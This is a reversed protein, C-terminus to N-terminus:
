AKTMKQSYTEILKFLETGETVSFTVYYEEENLSGDEDDLYYFNGGYHAVNVGSPDPAEYYLKEFAEQSKKDTTRCCIEVEFLTLEGDEDYIDGYEDFSDPETVYESLVKDFYGTCAEFFDAYNEERIVPAAHDQESWSNDYISIDKIDFGVDKLKDFVGTPPYTKELEHLMEVLEKDKEDFSYNRMLMNGNKLTYTVTIHYDTDMGVLGDFFYDFFTEDEDRERKKHKENEILAKHFKKAKEVGESDSIEMDYSANFSAKEVKSVSPVVNTEYVSLAYLGAIILFCSIVWLLMNKLNFIKPTKRLIMQTIIFVVFSFAIFFIVFGILRFPVFLSLFISMLSGGVFMVIVSIVPIESKFAVMDGACELKRIKYLVYSVALIVLSVAFYIIVRPYYYDTLNSFNFQEVLETAYLIEDSMVFGLKYAIFDSIPSYLVPTIGIETSVLGHGIGTVVLHVVSAVAVCVFNIIFYLVAAAFINGALMVALVGSVYFVFSEAFISVLQLVVIAVAEKSFIFIGPLSVAFGILQPVVLLIYGALFSTIFLGKRGIPMAHLANCMNPKYLYSFVLIAFLGSFGFSFIDSAISMGTFTELELLNDPLRFNSFIIIPFIILDIILLPITFPLFRKIDSKFIAKNFLCRNSKM